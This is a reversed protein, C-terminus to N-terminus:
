PDGPFRDVNATVILQQAFRVSKRASSISAFCLDCIVSVGHAAARCGNAAMPRTEERVRVPRIRRRKPHAIRVAVDFRSDDSYFQTTVAFRGDLDNRQGNQTKVRCPGEYRYKQESSRERLLRLRALGRAWASPASVPVTRVCWCRARAILDHAATRQM